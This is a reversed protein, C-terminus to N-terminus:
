AMGVKRYLAKSGDKGMFYAVRHTEVKLMAAIDEVPIRRSRCHTLFHILSSPDYAGDSAIVPPRMDHKALTRQQLRTISIVEKVASQEVLKGDEEIVPAQVKGTRHALFPIKFNKGRMTQNIFTVKGVMAQKELQRNVTSISCGIEKSIEEMTKKGDVREMISPLINSQRPMVEGNEARRVNRMGKTPPSNIQPLPPTPDRTRGGDRRDTLTPPRAGSKEVWLPMRKM